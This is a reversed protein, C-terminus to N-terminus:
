WPVMTQRMDPARARGKSLACLNLSLGDPDMQKDVLM